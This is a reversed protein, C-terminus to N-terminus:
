GFRIGGRGRRHGFRWGEGTLVFHEDIEGTFPPRDAVAKLPDPDRSMAVILYSKGRVEMSSEVDIVLNTVFHRFTGPPRQRLMELIAGRGVVPEATAPTLYSGEAAFLAAAEEFRGADNLQNYRNVLKACEWEILMRETADPTTTM